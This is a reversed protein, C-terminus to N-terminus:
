QYCELRVSLGAEKGGKVKVRPPSWPLVFVVTPTNKM